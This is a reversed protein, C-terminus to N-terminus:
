RKSDQNALSLLEKALKDVYSTIGYQMLVWRRRNEQEDAGLAYTQRILVDSFTEIDEQPVCVGGVEGLQEKVGGVDFAVCPKGLLMAEFLVKPMGESRSPLIVAEAMSLLSVPNSIHGPFIVHSELNRRLLENRLEQEAFEGTGVGAWVFLADQRLQVVQSAIDFFFDVGKCRGVFGCCVFLGNRSALPLEISLIKDSLWTNALVHVVTIKEEAIGFENVLSQRGRECVHFHCITEDDLVTRVFDSSALARELIWTTEHWYLVIKKRLLKCLKFIRTGNLTWLSNIGDFVVVEAALLSRIGYRKTGTWVFDLCIGKERLADQAYWLSDLPTGGAQKHHSYVCVRM